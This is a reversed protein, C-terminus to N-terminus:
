RRGNGFGKNQRVMCQGTEKFGFRGLFAQVREPKIGTMLAMTITLANSEESWEIFKKVLLLPAKTNRYRSAVFILDSHTGVDRSFSYQTLYGCMFGLLEGRREAVYGFCEPDTTYLKIREYVVLPDIAPYPVKSEFRFQEGLDVLQVLDELRAKRVLTSKSRKM